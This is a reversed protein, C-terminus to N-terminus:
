VVLSLLDSVSLIIGSDKECFFEEYLERPPSLSMKERFDRTDKERNVTFLRMKNWTKKYQSEEIVRFFISSANAKKM